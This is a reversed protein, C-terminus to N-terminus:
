GSILENVRLAIPQSFSFRVGPVRSLDQEIARTLTAKDRGTKWAKRAEAHHFRRDAGAWPTRPSRAPRVQQGRDGSPFTRLRREIFEAVKVSGELSANPLRVVNVALAGEDLPPM